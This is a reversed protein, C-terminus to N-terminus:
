LSTSRAGGARRLNVAQSSVTPEGRHESLEVEHGDFCVTLVDSYFTSTVSSAESEAISAISSSAATTGSPGDDAGDCPPFEFASLESQLAGGDDGPSAGGPVSFALTPSPLLGPVPSSVTLASVAHLSVDLLRTHRLLFPAGSGGGYVDDLSDSAARNVSGRHGLAYALLDSLLSLGLSVLVPAYGNLVNLNFYKSHLHAQLLLDVSVFLCIVIKPACRFVKICVATDHCSTIVAQM